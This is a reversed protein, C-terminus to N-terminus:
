RIIAIAHTGVAADYRNACSAVVWELDERLLYRADVLHQAAAILRANDHAESKEPDYDGDDGTTVLKAICPKVGPAFVFYGGRQEPYEEFISYEWPGKTQLISEEISYLDGTEHELYYIYVSPFLRQCSLHLLIVLGAM